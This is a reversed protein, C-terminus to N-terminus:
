DVKRYRVKYGCEVLQKGFAAAKGYTEFKYTGYWVWKRNIYYEVIWM